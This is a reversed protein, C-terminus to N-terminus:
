TQVALAALAEAETAHTEFVTNLRTIVFVDRLKESVNCLALRGGRNAVATHTTAIEAVGSSDILTLGDLDVVFARTGSDLATRVARRIGFDREGITLPGRVQLVM